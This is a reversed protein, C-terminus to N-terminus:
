SSMVIAGPLDVETTIGGEILADAIVNDPLGLLEKFVYENHEGLCPARFQNDPTQSLRFAPGRDRYSGIAPHTLNRFFGRHKLQSDDFLQSIKLVASAPIGNKQLLTELEKAPFTQTFEAILADLEDEHAKRSVFTSFKSDNILSSSGIVQCLKQWQVDNLIAVACWEDEGHCPYTNHPCASTVNNGRRQPEENNTMYDMILPAISHCGIEAHALDIHQGKGTRRRYDLAALIAATGFRPALYDTYAAPHPIPPGDRYGTVYTIGSAAAAHWGWGIRSSYPGGEGFMSTSFYIIEPRVKSVSEYDLEWRNMTGPIFNEAVIDAWKILEWALNRGTPKNLNLSVSFTSTNTQAFMMSNDIGPVGNKFPNMTRTQDPRAHSEIKVVTAGWMALYRMHLPGVILWGFSAVKLGELAKRM